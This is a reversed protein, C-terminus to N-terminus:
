TVVHIVTEVVTEVTHEHVSHTKLILLRSILKIGGHVGGAVVLGDVMGIELIGGEEAHGTVTSVDDGLVDGEGLIELDAIPKTEIPHPGVGVTGLTVEVPHLTGGLDVDELGLGLFNM